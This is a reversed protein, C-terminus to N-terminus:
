FTKDNVGIGNTREADWYIGGGGLLRGKIRIDWRQADHFKYPVLYDAWQIEIM